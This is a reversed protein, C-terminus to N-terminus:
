NVANLQLTLTLTLALLYRYRHFLRCTGIDYTLLHRRSTVLVAMFSITLIVELRKVIENYCNDSM